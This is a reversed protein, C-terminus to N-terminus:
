APTAATTAAQLATVTDTLEASIADIKTQDGGASALQATLNAIKTAEDNVKAILTTVGDRIQDAEAKLDELSSM